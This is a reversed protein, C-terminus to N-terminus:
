ISKVNAVPFQLNFDPVGFTMRINSLSIKPFFDPNTAVRKTSGFAIKGNASISYDFLKNDIQQRFNMLGGPVIATTVPIKFDSFSLDFEAIKTKSNLEVSVKHGTAYKTFHFNALEKPIGWNNIGNVVSIETSVYIKSIHWFQGDPTDLRGPIFLLEFYPGAESSQYDVLMIIPLSVFAFKDSFKPLHRELESEPLNLAIIYGSGRLNWPAPVLKVPPM